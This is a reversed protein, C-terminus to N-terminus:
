FCLSISLIVDMHSPYQDPDFFKTLLTADLTWFPVGTSKYLSVFMNQSGPGLYLNALPRRVRASAFEHKPVNWRLLPTTLVMTGVITYM